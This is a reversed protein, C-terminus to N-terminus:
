RLCSVLVFNCTPSRGHKRSSPVDVGGGGHRAGDGRSSVTMLPTQSTRPTATPSSSRAMDNELGVSTVNCFRTYAGSPWHGFFDSASTTGSYDELTRCTLTGCTWAAYLSFASCSWASFSFPFVCSSLSPSLSSSTPFNGGAWLPVHEEVALVSASCLSWFQKGFGASISSGFEEHADTGRLPVHLKTCSCSAPLPGDHYFQKDLKYLRPWGLAMQSKVWVLNTFLGVPRRPEAGAIQCPFAAGRQVDSVGDRKRLQTNSWISAPRNHVHRGMDEPFIQLVGVKRRSWLAAPELFWTVIEVESISHDAKDQSQPSMSTLGMLQQRSRLPPQGSSSHRVRSWTSDPPALHVAAFFDLASTNLSSYSSSFIQSAASISSCLSLIHKWRSHGVTM